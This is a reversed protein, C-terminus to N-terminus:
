TALCSSHIRLDLRYRCGSAHVLENLFDGRAIAGEEGGDEYFHLINVAMQLAIAPIEPLLAAVTFACIWAIDVALLMFSSM